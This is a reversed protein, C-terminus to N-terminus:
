IVDEKLNWCTITIIQEKQAETYDNQTKTDFRKDVSVRERLVLSVLM